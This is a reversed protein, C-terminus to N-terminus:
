IGSYECQQTVSTKGIAADCKATCADLIPRVPAQSVTSLRKVREEAKDASPAGGRAKQYAAEVDPDEMMCYEKCIDAAALTKAKEESDFDDGRGTRPKGEYTATATCRHRKKLGCGSAVAGLGVLTLMAASLARLIGPNEDFM